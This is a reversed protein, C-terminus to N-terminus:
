LQIALPEPARGRYLIIPGLITKNEENNNESQYITKMIDEYIDRKSPAYIGLYKSICNGKYYVMHGVRADTYPYVIDLNVVYEDYHEFGLASGWQADEGVLGRYGILPFRLANLYDTYDVLLNISEIENKDQADSISVKLFEERNWM